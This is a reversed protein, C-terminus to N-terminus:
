DVVRGPLRDCQGHQFAAITSPGKINTAKIPASTEQGKVRPESGRRATVRLDGIDVPFPTDEEISAIGNLLEGFMAVEHLDTVQQEVPLKGSPGFLGLEHAGDGMVRHHMFLKPIKEAAKTAVGM